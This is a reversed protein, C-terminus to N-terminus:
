FAPIFYTLIRRCVFLCNRLQFLRKLQLLRFIRKQVKETVFEVHQSFSLYKDIIVGLFKRQDEIEVPSFVTPASSNEGVTLLMAKTKDLNLNM